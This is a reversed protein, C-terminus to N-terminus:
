KISDSIYVAAQIGGRMVAKWFIKADLEPHMPRLIDFKRATDRITNYNWDEVELYDASKLIEPIFECVSKNKEIKGSITNLQEETLEGFASPPFKDEDSLYEYNLFKDTRENNPELTIFINSVANEAVKVAMEAQHSVCIVNGCKEVNNRPFDVDSGIEVTARPLVDFVARDTYETIDEIYKVKGPISMWAREASTRKCEVEYLDYPKPNNICLESPTYTVSKRNKLLDSPEEGGAILLGQMTLNLDSAYPYTWGSMYGGSLRGAIEGIMPGKKTYKIDAKAAGCSLGLAKAGLAFVSILENRKKENIVAPMTHGVEIFYPPYYIHRVAFGTITMTGNYILADISYEPGDMYEEVIANGSRSSDVAVKIASMFENSSRVMRCGRAGMNDVPKVVFPFDMCKLIENLLNDNVMEKSVNVFAPSPVNNDKFCQRMTTKVSANVAAEYSHANLGLKECVYSVSTSFDTGATFVCSLNENEKLSKAYEYIDEKAKLDIVKFVDAINNCIAKPNGDIVFTKYGLQKASLIAPKQMLGAGLILCSKNRMNM